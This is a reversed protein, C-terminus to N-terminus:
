VLILKDRKRYWTSTKTKSCSAGLLRAISLHMRVHPAGTGCPLWHYKQTNIYVQRSWQSQLVPLLLTQRSPDTVSNLVPLRTVPFVNRVHTCSYQFSSYHFSTDTDHLSPIAVRELM